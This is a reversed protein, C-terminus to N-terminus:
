RKSKKKGSKKAATKKKPAKKVNGKKGGKKKGSGKKKGGKKAVPAPVPMSEITDLVEQVESPYEKSLTRLLGLGGAKTEAGVQSALQEALKSRREPDKLIGELIEKRKKTTMAM